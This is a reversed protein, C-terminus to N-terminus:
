ISLIEMLEHCNEIKGRDLRNLVVPISFLERVLAFIIGRNPLNAMERRINPHIRGRSIVREFTKWYYFYSRLIFEVIAELRASGDFVVKITRLRATFIAYTSSFQFFILECLSFDEGRCYTSVAFLTQALIEEYSPIDFYPLM